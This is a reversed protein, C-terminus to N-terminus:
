PAGGSKGHQVSGDALCVHLHIPCQFIEENYNTASIGPQLFTYTIEAVHLQSWDKAKVGDPVSPCFLGDPRNLENTMALFNPPFIKQGNGKEHDNAWILAALGLQKLNQICMISRSKEREQPTLKTVEALAAEAQALNQTAETLQARLQGLDTNQLAASETARRRLQTVENRLRALEREDSAINRASPISEQRAAAIELGKKKDDQRSAELQEGRKALERCLFINWGVSGALAVGLCLQLAKVKKKSWTAM